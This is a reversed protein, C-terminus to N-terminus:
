DTLPGVGNKPACAFIESIHGTADQYATRVTAIFSEVAGSEVLAVVSGGFGGGTMRAGYVGKQAQAIDVLRDVEECSIEYDDRMSVHSANMLRGFTDLDSNQLAEAAQLVRENETVIHRCRRYTLDPLFDRNEELDEFSVDRLARIEGLAPRLLRVGDECSQRRKNYEGDALAHHVMSNAVVIRARQDIPVPRSALSRCDIMLAHDVVGNCSIFQDMIGCRMGVFENEAKQCLKALEVTDVERGALSLLAYGVVVELAASSSLGAGVPVTSSVVIDAGSLRVGSAELMVAVGFAYDTWDGRPEPKAGDLDIEASKGNNLSHIRIVRDPRVTAAAQAEFELAAPMVFGDNYDTHEGILNVRGPARFFQPEGDFHDLFRARLVDVTPM